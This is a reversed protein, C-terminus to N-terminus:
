RELTRRRHWPCPIAGGALSAACTSRELAAGARMPAPRSLGRAAHREAVTAGTAVLGQRRCWASGRALVRARWPCRWRPRTAPWARAAPWPHTRRASRPAPTKSCPGGPAAQAGLVRRRAAEPHHCCRGAAASQASARATASRHQLALAMEVADVGAAWWWWADAAAAGARAHTGVTIVFAELPRLVLGTSARVPIADRDM